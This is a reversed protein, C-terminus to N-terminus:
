CVTFLTSVSRLANYLVEAWGTLECASSEGRRVRKIVREVSLREEWKYSVEVVDKCSSATM